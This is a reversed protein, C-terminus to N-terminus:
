GTGSQAPTLATDGINFLAPTKSPAHQPVLGQRLVPRAELEEICLLAAITAESAAGMPEGDLNPDASDFAEAVGEGATAYDQATEQDMEGIWRSAAELATAKTPRGPQDGMQIHVLPPRSAVPGRFAAAPSFLHVYSRSMDVLLVETAGLVRGRTNELSVQSKHFMPPDEDLQDAVLALQVDPHNPALVMFGNPRYRLAYCVAIAGAEEAPPSFPLHLAPLNRAQAASDVLAQLAGQDLPAKMTGSTAM